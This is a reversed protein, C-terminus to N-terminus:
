QLTGAKKLFAQLDGVSATSPDFKAPTAGGKLRNEAPAPAQSVRRVLDPSSLRGEIRALEIGQRVEPLKGIRRAESPNNALYNALEPTKESEVIFDAMTETIDRLSYFKDLVGPMQELHPRVKEEFTEQRRVKRENEAQEAAAKAVKVDEEAKERMEDRAGQRASHAAREDDTMDHRQPLPRSLRAVEKALADARAKEAEARREESRWNRTLESIRQSPPKSRKSQDQDQNQQAADSKGSQDDAASKDKGQVDAEAGEQAQANPESSTQAADTAPANADLEGSLAPAATDHGALANETTM